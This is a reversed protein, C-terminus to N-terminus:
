KVQTPQGNKLTWQQGNAFTTVVGEKLQSAAASPLQAGGASGTAGEPTKIGFRRATEIERDLIEQWMANRQAPTARMGDISSAWDNFKKQANDNITDYSNKERAGFIKEFTAPDKRYLDMKQQFETPKRAQILDAQARDEAAKVERGRLGLEERKIGLNTQYEALQKQSNAVDLAAKVSRQADGSARAEALKAQDMQVQQQLRSLEFMEKGSLDFKEQAARLAAEKDEQYKGAAAGAGTLGGYLTKAGAMGALLRGIGAMDQYGPREFRSQAEQMRQQAIAERRKREEEFSSASTALLKDIGGRAAIEEPTVQGARRMAEQQAASAAAYADVAPTPPQEALAGIGQAPPKQATPQRRQGSGPSAMPAPAATPGTPARPKSALGVRGEHDYSAVETPIERPVEPAVDTKGTYSRIIDSFPTLSATEDSTRKYQSYPLSLIDALAALPYGATFALARGVGSRSAKEKRAEYEENTEGPLRELTSEGKAFAVAGGGAYGHMEGGYAAMVPQQPMQPMHQQRAQQMIGEAIPPQQQLQANQAMVQQGQQAQAMQAAKQQKVIAAIVAYLPPSQPQPNTYFQELKEFPMTALQDVMAQPTPAGQQPMMGPLPQQPAQGPMLNQGPMPGQGGMLSQIGSM